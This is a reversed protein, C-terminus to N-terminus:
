DDDIERWFIGVYMRCDPAADWDPEGDEDLPLVDNERLYEEVTLAPMNKRWSGLADEIHGSVEGSYANAIGELADEAAKFADNGIGVEVHDWGSSSIGPFYDPYDFGHIKIAAEYKIM